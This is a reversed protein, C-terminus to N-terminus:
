KKKSLWITPNKNSLNFIASNKSVLFKDKSNNVDETLLARWNSPDKRIKELKPLYFKIAPDNWIGGKGVKKSFSQFLDNAWPSQSIIAERLHNMEALIQSPHNISSFANISKEYWERGEKLDKLKYFIFGINAYAHAIIGKDQSHSVKEIYKLVPSVIELSIEESDIEAKSIEAFYKNLILTENEPEVILGKRVISIMEDYKDLLAAIYSSLIAPECTYPEEEQWLLAFKLASEMDCEQYYAWCKAENSNKRKKLNDDDVLNKLDSIREAWKAQALVNSNPNKLSNIFLSKAKKQNGSLLELSALCSNLETLHFDSQITDILKKAVKWNQSNRGNSKAVAIEASLLWPDSTLNPNTKLIKHAIDNENISIFFRSSVRSVWRNHESLQLGTLISKRASNHEGISVFARGLDIWSLSDKPHEKLWKRKLRIEDEANHGASELPYFANGDLIHQALDKLRLPSYTDKLIFDAVHRVQSINNTLIAINLLEAGIGISRNQKFDNILEFFYTSNIESYVKSNVSLFEVTPVDTSNKWIPILDRRDIKKFVSM